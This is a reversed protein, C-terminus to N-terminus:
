LVHNVPRMNPGEHGAQRRLEARGVQWLVDTLVVLLVVHLAVLFESRRLPFFLGPLPAMCSFVFGGYCAAALAVSVPIRWSVRGRSKQHVALSGLLLFVCGHYLYREHVGCLLLTMALNCMGIATLTTAITRQLDAGGFLRFAEFWSRGRKLSRVWLIAILLNAALFLVKGCQSPTLQIDTAGLMFSWFPESSRSDVDRGLLRWVNIGNGIIDAQDTGGGMWVYLFSSGHYGTPVFLTRDLAFCLGLPVLTSAVALVFGTGKWRVAIQVAGVAAFALLLPASFVALQKTLLALGLFLFSMGNAFVALGLRERALQRFLLATAVLPAILLCQTVGDIQGWLASGVWSSPIVSVLLAITWPRRLRMITALWGLLLFLVANWGALYRRFDSVADFSSGLHRQLWGLAGASTLIGFVPYNVSREYVASPGNGLREAWRQFVDIDTRFVADCMSVAIFPFLIGAVISLVAVHSRLLHLVAARALDAVRFHGKFRRGGWSDCLSQPADGAPRANADGTTMTAIPQGM